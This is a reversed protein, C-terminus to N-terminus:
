KTRKFYFRIHPAYGEGRVEVHYEKNEVEVAYTGELIPLGEEPSPLSIFRETGVKMLRCSTHIAGKVHAAVKIKSADQQHKLACAEREAKTMGKSWVKEEAFAADFQEALDIADSIMKARLRALRHGTSGHSAWNVEARCTMYYWYTGEPDVFPGEDNRVWDINFSAEVNTLKDPQEPNPVYGGLELYLHGGEYKQLRDVCYGPKVLASAHATLWEKVRRAHDAANETPIHDIPEFTREMAGNYWPVSGPNM